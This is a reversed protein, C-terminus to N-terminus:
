ACTRHLRFTEKDAGFYHQFPRLRVTLRGSHLLRLHFLPQHTLVSPSSCGKHEHRILWARLIAVGAPDLSSFFGCGTVSVLKASARACKDLMARDTVANFTEAVCQDAAIDVRFDRVHGFRFRLLQAITFKVVDDGIVDPIVM